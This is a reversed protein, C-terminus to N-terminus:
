LTVLMKEGGKLIITSISLCESANVLTKICNSSHHTVTYPVFVFANM